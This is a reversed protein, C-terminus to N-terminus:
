CLKTGLLILEEMFLLNNVNKKYFCTFFLIRHFIWNHKRQLLCEVNTIYFKSSRRMTLCVTNIKHAYFLYLM